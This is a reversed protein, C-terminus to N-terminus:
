SSRSPSASRAGKRRLLVYRAGIGGHRAGAQASAIVVPKLEPAELWRPLVARLVGAGFGAYPSEDAARVSGKGTIVLVCRVGDSASRKLFRVLAAHADQQTMGHLDLRAGIDIRGRRLAKLDHADIDGPQPLAASKKARPAAPLKALLYLRSNSDAADPSEPPAEGMAQRWLRVEDATLKRRGM